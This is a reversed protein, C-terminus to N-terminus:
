LGVSSKDSVHMSATIENKDEFNESRYNELDSNFIHGPKQLAKPLDGMDENSNGLEGDAGSFSFGFKLKNANLAHTFKSDSSAGGEGEFKSSSNRKM